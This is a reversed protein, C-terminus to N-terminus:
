TAGRAEARDTVVAVLIMGLWLYKAWDTSVFSVAISVVIVGAIGTGRLRVRRVMNPTVRGDLLDRHRAVYVVATSAFSAALLNLAFLDTALVNDPYAALLGATFPFLTITFLFLFNWWAVSEHHGSILRYVRHHVLWFQAIVYFSM